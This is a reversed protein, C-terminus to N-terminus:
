IVVVSPVVNDRKVWGLIPGKNYGGDKFGYVVDDYEPGPKQYLDHPVSNDLERAVCSNWEDITVPLFIFDGRLRRIFFLAFMPIVIVMVLLVVVWESLGVETTEISTHGQVEGWNMSEVRLIASLIGPLVSPEVASFSILEEYIRTALLTALFSKPQVQELGYSPAYTFEIYSMEGYLYTSGDTNTSEYHFWRGVSMTGSDADVWLCIEVDNSGFNGIYQSTCTAVVQVTIYDNSNEPVPETPIDFYRTNSFYQFVGIYMAIGEFYGDTSSTFVRIIFEPISKIIQFERYYKEVILNDRCGLLTHEVEDWELCYGVRMVGDFGNANNYGIIGTDYSGEILSVDFSNRDLSNFGTEPDEYIGVSGIGPSLMYMYIPIDDEGADILMQELTVDFELDSVDEGVLGLLSIQGSEVYVTTSSIGSTTFELLLSTLIGMIIPFCAMITMKRTKSRKCIRILKPIDTIESLYGADQIIADGTGTSVMIRRIELIIKGVIFAM